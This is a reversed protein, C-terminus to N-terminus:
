IENLPMKIHRCGNRKGLETEPVGQLM